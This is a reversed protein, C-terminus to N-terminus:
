WGRGSPKLGLFVQEAMDINSTQGAWHKAAVHIDRFYRDLPHSRYVSTTGAAEYLLDVARLSERGAHTVALRAQAIKWTPDSEGNCVATWLNGVAEYLFARSSSIAAEAQGVAAHVAPRERLPTASSNSGQSSVSKVFTDMAEEAIGILCAAFPGLTLAGLARLNYLPGSEDPQDARQNSLSVTQEAPVFMDEVVFDHSGTGIMGSVAWNEQVKVQVAPVFVMVTQPDGEPTLNPGVDGFVRCNCVLWNAYHIGSAFTFHGSTNFGGNTIRAVGLPQITGSLRVDPPQGFMEQAVDNKLLGGYIGLDGTVYACWGASGDARSLEEVVEMFVPPSVELGGISRPYIAKFVGADDMRQVVDDPMHRLSEAEDRRDRILPSLAKAAAMLDHSTSDDKM